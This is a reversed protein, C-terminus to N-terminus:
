DYVDKGGTHCDSCETYEDLLEDDDPHIFPLGEEFNVNVEDISSGQALILHCRNCDTFITEGDASQMEDTHCRFCGPSDRHGLNDPYASWSAKMEPFITRQYIRQVEKISRTLEQPKQDLLEPYRKRYFGRIRNAIGVVAEKTTAYETDLAKVAQVKIFPLDSSIAGDELAHNVTEMPPPFQHSPRNHCDMCDMTRIEMAETEPETLPYEASNYETVSGDARTVRVWSIEQRKADSAIYEVQSAILMHYHIGSGRMFSTKEGGIKILMRVRHLSNKEDGLFYSRVSEKYGVFKRRWHCEECTERAPRLDRIPTPIPRPFSNVTVAYVQRLGSLKSRAYWGAGSGIHCEVCKVRAHSSNHYTTWEPHMVSHCLQGCFATSETAHYSKYTGIGILLLVVMGTALFSLAAYRHAPKSLDVRYGGSTEATGRSVPHRGRVLVGVPILLFGTAILTTFLLYLIGAYPAAQDLLIELLLFFLGSVFGLLILAAGIWSLWNWPSAGSGKKREDELPIEKRLHKSERGAGGM